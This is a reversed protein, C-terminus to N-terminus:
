SLGAEYMLSELQKDIDLNYEEFKRLRQVEEKADFTVKKREDLIKEVEDKVSSIEGALGQNLANSLEMLKEKVKIEVEKVLDQRRSTLDESLKNGINKKIAGKLSLVNLFGGAIISAITAGIFAIPNLFGFGFIGLIAVAIGQIAITDIMAKLGIMGIGGTLDGTMLTYGGAILRGWVTPEQGGIEEDDVNGVSIDLRVKNVSELFEKADIELKDQVEQIRAKIIPLLEDTAWEATNLKIKSKLHDLVERVVPELTKKSPPFPLSSEIKYEKAWAPIKNPLVKFYANALDCVEREIDYIASDFRSIMLQRRMELNGLPVKAEEYRKELEENPAQLMRIRDTIKERVVRNVSRLSWLTTFLKAKGKQEVLFSELSNEVDEIGSDAIRRYDRRIRGILASRSDVYNIRGYGLKTFESLNREVGQQFEAESMEGLSASEKIHDYYTIIFFLSEYGLTQLLKITDLDKKSATDQSKMLYLVADVSKAYDLTIKDRSDPDDLGVSDILEVGNACLELPWDLEM